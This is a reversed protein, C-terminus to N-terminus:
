AAEEVPSEKPPAEVVRLPDGSAKVYVIRYDEGQSERKLRAILEDIPVARGRLVIAAYIRLDSVNTALGTANM